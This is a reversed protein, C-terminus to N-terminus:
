EFMFSDFSSSQVEHSLDDDSFSHSSYTGPWPILYVERHQLLGYIEPDSLPHFHLSDFTNEILHVLARWFNVKDNRSKTLESQCDETNDSVRLRRGWLHIIKLSLPACPAAHRKRGVPEM